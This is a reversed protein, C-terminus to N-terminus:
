VPKCGTSIEKGDVTITGSKALTYGADYLQRIRVLPSAGEQTTGIDCRLTGESFTMEVYTVAPDGLDDGLSVEAIGLSDAWISPVVGEDSQRKFGAEQLQAELPGRAPQVVQEPCGIDIPWCHPAPDGPDRNKSSCASLALAGIIFVALSYRM